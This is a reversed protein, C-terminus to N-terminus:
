HTVRVRALGLGLMEENKVNMYVYRLLVRCMNRKFYSICRM